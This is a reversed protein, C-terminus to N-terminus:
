LINCVLVGNQWFLIWALIIEVRCTNIGLFHLQVFWLWSILYVLAHSCAYLSLIAGSHLSVLISSSYHVLMDIIM